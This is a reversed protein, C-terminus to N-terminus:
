EFKMIKVTLSGEDLRIEKEMLPTPIHRIASLTERMLDAGYEYIVSALSASTTQFDLLVQDSVAFGAEKRLLQCHRLIERYLGETKLEDTIETNIAVLVENQSKAIHDKEKSSLNFLGAPLPTEYGGAIIPNGSRYASVCSAMEEGTLNDFLMKVRNLDSKLHKGAIQFNLSLYETSLSGFDALYVIEKLNLEDKIIDAYPACVPELDKGLYLISLPQKVKLNRDNRLKLAQTIVARVKEANGLVAENVSDAKPFGSLHVSEEGAGYNLTMGQWIHETMFPLIPAMVQAMTKIAYYLTDYASQKDTDLTNKWFRRRNIRVYWNSVDDTCLEFERLLEAFNYKDYYRAAKLIFDDIRNKLWRDTVDASEPGSIVPKDITAYTMFFSYINWFSLLKRRAEEGLKYGFRVDSAMSAGAFLYRITDSGLKEAAEDFRIMFGTKSFKTGDEALVWNNTQVREYPARGTITVSMFLQAYFWLRVQEQMEIIWEAPFNKEWEERDSFYGLTSFPVIGADLWVDGVEPVRSVPEGCHPCRLKISDIWPRHLEPLKYVEAGGLKALEERSGIM